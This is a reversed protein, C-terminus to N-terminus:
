LLSRIFAALYAQLSCLLTLGVIIAAIVILDVFCTKM